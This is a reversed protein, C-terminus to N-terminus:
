VELIRTEIEKAYKVIKIIADAMDDMDELTLPPYILHTLVVESSDLEECVSCLGPGYKIKLMVPTPSLLIAMM